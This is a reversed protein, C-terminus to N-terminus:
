GAPTVTVRHEHGNFKVDYIMAGAAPKGSAAPPPAPAPQADPAKGPYKMTGSFNGGARLRAPSPPSLMVWLQGAPDLKGEGGSMGLSLVLFGALLLFYRMPAIMFRLMKLGSKERGLLGSSRAQDRKM